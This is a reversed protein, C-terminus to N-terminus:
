VTYTYRVVFQMDACTANSTVVITLADNQAISTNTLSSAAGSTSSVNVTGISSAGNKLEATCTGSVSKAWFETITRATAARSDLRYTKNSPTEIMGVYSDTDTHTHDSRSVTTASGTGGFSVSLTRNAGLDGGGTLGSGTSITRNINVYNTLHTASLSSSVAITANGGAGGDSLTIGTGAALVREGTLDNDLALVVYQAGTPAGSGGGGTASLTTGSLSLGSGVTLEEPAGGSASGRGLIRGATVSQVKAYTVAGDDLKATNVAGDAIKARTVNVDAIKATTVAANAITTANANASATVDGTLAAREFTVAGGTAWNATISTSDNVVREATLTGDATKVLYEASTPAGGGGGGSDNDAAPAWASGNWKIVQGSSAGAQALKAMTVAGDAIKATTVSGDTPTRTDSLRSDNGVCATTSSTGYAVAFTRNASLDGGGTLGTGATLTISQAALANALDLQKSGNITLGSGLTISEAAGSTAAQRGVLVPGTIGTIASAAHTHSAAAFDGTASTAATGLGLTTRQAAADADDLLAKGATTIDGGLKSTGVVGADITWTAGSSSVTIDGKDGDSVGGGGGAGTPGQPGPASVILQDPM